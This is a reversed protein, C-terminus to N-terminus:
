LVNTTITCIITHCSYLYPHNIPVHHPSIRKRFFTIYMQICLRLQFSDRPRCSDELLNEVARLFLHNQIFGLGLSLLLLFSGHRPSPSEKVKCRFYLMLCSVRCRLPLFAGKDFGQVTNWSWAIFGGVYGMIPAIVHAILRTQLKACDPIVGIQKIVGVVARMQPPLMTTPLHSVLWTLAATIMAARKAAELSKDSLVRM